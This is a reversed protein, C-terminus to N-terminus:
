KTIHGEATVSMDNFEWTSMTDAGASVDLGFLMGGQADVQSDADGTVEVTLPAIPGDAQLLEKIERAKTGGTKMMLLKVKRDPASLKVTLVWKDIHVPLLEHPLTFRTLSTTAGSIKGQFEGTKDNYTPSSIGPLRVNNIRMFGSAVVVATGEEPRTLSVPVSVLTLVHREPLLSTSSAVTAGPDLTNNWTFLTFANRPAASVSPEMAALLHARASSIIGSGALVGRPLQEGPGSVFNGPSIIRTSFNGSPGAIIAEQGTVLVAGSVRSALGEPGFTGTAAMKEPMAITGGVSSFLTASPFHLFDWRMPGLESWSMRVIHGAQKAFDPVIWSGAPISLSGDFTFPSYVDVAGSYVVMGAGPVGTADNMSAVTLPTTGRSKAGLFLMAGTAALALLCAAPALMELRRRRGFRWGALVLLGCLAGLVIMVPQRGVVEHGVISSALEHMAQQPTLARGKVPAEPAGGGQNASKAGM